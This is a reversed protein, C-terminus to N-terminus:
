HMCTIVDIYPLRSLETYRGGIVNEIHERESATCANKTDICMQYHLKLDRPEWEDCDYGSFDAECVKRTAPLHCHM